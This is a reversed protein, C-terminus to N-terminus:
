CPATMASSTNPIAHVAGGGAGDTSECGALRAGAAAGLASLGAVPNERVNVMCPMVNRTDHGLRPDILSSRM